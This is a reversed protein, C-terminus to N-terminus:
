LKMMTDADLVVTAGGKDAPKIIVDRRSMLQKLALREEKSINDKTKEYPHEKINHNIIDLYANVAMEKTRLMKKPKTDKNLKELKTPPKYPEEEEVDTEEDRAFIEKAIIKRGFEDLDKQLETKNVQKHISYSYIYIYPYLSHTLNHFANTGEIWWCFKNYRFFSWDIYTCIDHINLILHKFLYLNLYIFLYNLLLNKPDHTLTVLGFDLPHPLM